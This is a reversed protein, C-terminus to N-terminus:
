YCKIDYLKLVIGNKKKKINYIQKNTFHLYIFIFTFGLGLIVFIKYSVM